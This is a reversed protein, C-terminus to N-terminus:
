HREFGAEALDRLGLMGPQFRRRRVALKGIPPVLQRVGRAHQVERGVVRPRCDRTGSTACHSNRHGRVQDAFQAHETPGFFCAQEHDQEGGEFRQEIAVCALRVEDNSRPEGIARIYAGLCHDSHEDVTDRQACIHTPIHRKTFQERIHSASGPLTRLGAAAV